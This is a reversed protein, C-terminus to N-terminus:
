LLRERVSIHLYISSRALLIESARGVLILKSGYFPVNSVDYYGTITAIMKGGNMKQMQFKLDVECLTQTNHSMKIAM